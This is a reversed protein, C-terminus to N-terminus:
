PFASQLVTILGVEDYWALSGDPKILYYEGFLNDYLYKDGQKEIPQNFTDFNNLYMTTEKYEGNSDKSIRILLTSKTHNDLWTGITEEGLTVEDLKTMVRSENSTIHTLSGVAVVLLIIIVTLGLYKSAWNSKKGKELNM